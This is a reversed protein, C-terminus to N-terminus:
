GQSIRLIRISRITSWDRAGADDSQGIAEFDLHTANPLDLRFHGGRDRCRGPLSRFEELCSAARVSALHAAAASAGGNGLRQQLQAFCGCLHEVRRNAFLIEVPANPPFKQVSCTIGEAPRPLFVTGNRYLLLHPVRARDTDSPRRIAFFNPSSSMRASVSASASRLAALPLM